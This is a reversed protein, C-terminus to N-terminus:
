LICTPAEVPNFDCFSLRLVCHNALQPSLGIKDQTVLYGKSLFYVFQTSSAFSCHTTASHLLIPSYGKVPVLMQVHVRRRRSQTHISRRCVPCFDPRRSASSSVDPTSDRLKTPRPRPSIYLDM